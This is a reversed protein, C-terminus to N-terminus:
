FVGRGTSNGILLGPILNWAWKGLTPGPGFSWRAKWLEEEPGRRLGPPRREAAYVPETEWLVKPGAAEVGRM